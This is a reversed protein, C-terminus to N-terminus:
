AAGGQQKRAAVLLTRRGDGRLEVRIDRFGIQELAPVLEERSLAHAPFGALRTICAMAALVREPLEALPHLHAAVFWGGPRLASHIAGLIGPLNGAFAYLVHATLLLDWREAPFDMNRADAGIATFRAGLGNKEANVRAQEAVAPLDVMDAHLEANKRLLELSYEGLGGGLDCMRLLHQFDPLGAIFDATEQLFGQRACQATGLMTRPNNWDADAGEWCRLDGALLEPLSSFIMGCFDAHYDLYDGQFFPSTRTLWTRALPTNRYGRPGAELLGCVRFLELLAETGDARWDSREAVEEASAWDDLVDFVGLRVGYRVAHAAVETMLMEELPRFSVPPMDM